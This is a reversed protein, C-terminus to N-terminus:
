GIWSGEGIRIRGRAQQAGTGDEDAYGHDMLLVSQGVLVDREIHISNKASIQCEPGLCSNDGVSIIPQENHESVGIVQVSADKRIQVSNGLEIRNAQSRKWDCTHHVSLKRGLSAFPYTLAVWVSYLKTLARPIFRLPDEMPSPRVAAPMQASSTSKTM